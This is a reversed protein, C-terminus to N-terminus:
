NQCKLLDRILKLHWFFYSKERYFIKNKEQDSLQALKNGPLHPHLHHEAHFNANWLFFRIWANSQTSRSKAYFGLKEKCGYHEPLGFFIVWHFALLLPIWYFFLLPQPYQTTLFILFFLFSWLYFSDFRADKIKKSGELYYPYKKWLVLFSSSIKSIALPLGSLSILYSFLSPISTNRESDKKTGLYQHHRLHFARYLSFNILLLGISIMGVWRNLLKSRFLSYHLCEHALNLTGALILGLHLLILFRIALYNLKQFAYISFFYILFIILIKLFSRQNSIVSNIM